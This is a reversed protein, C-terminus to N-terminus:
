ADGRECGLPAEHQRGDARRHAGAIRRRGFALPHDLMRRVNEDRRGLRQEDQQRGIAAPLRQAADLGHDDVLNVRHGVVLAARVQRQRERPEVIQDLLGATRTRLPDAERRRDPRDLDDRPEERGVLVRPDVDDVVAMAARHIQRDLHRLVLEPRDRRVLHPLLDVVADGRQNLLVPRREDEHVRPPQGLADRMM